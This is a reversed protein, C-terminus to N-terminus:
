RHPERPPPPKSDDLHQVDYGRASLKQRLFDDGTQKLRAQYVLDSSSPRIEVKEASDAASLPRPPARARSCGAMGRAPRARQANEGLQGTRQLYLLFGNAGVSGIGVAYLVGLQFRALLRRRSM